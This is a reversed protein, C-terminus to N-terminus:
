SFNESICKKFFELIEEHHGDFAHGGDEFVLTNKDSIRFGEKNKHFNLDYIVLPDDKCHLLYISKQRAIQENANNSEFLIRAHTKPSVAELTDYFDEFHQKHFFIKKLAYRALWSSNELHYKWLTNYDYVACGACIFRLDPDHVMGSLAIIGGYSFGILALKKSDVDPLNKIFALVEESDKIMARPFYDPEYHAYKKLTSNGHDRIDYSIVQHGLSALSIAFKVDTPSLATDTFGHLAILTIGSWDTKVPEYKYATLQQGDSMPIKFINRTIQETNLSVPPYRTLLRIKRSLLVFLLKILLIICVIVLILILGTQLISEFESVM